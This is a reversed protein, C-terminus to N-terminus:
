FENIFARALSSEEWTEDPFFENIDELHEIEKKMGNKWATAFIKQILQLYEDKRVDDETDHATMVWDAMVAIEVLKKLEEKNFSIEM